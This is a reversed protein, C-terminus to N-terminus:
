ARVTDRHIGRHIERGLAERAAFLEGLNQRTLLGVLRGRSAVPLTRGGHAEFREMADGLPEAADLVPLDDRMVTAVAAGEGRESLGHVLDAKYLMGLVRGGEVVPFDEQTGALLEDLARQLSDDARVSTFRVVMADAVLQHEAAARLEVDMLEGGAALWLFGGILALVPNLWLGLLVFAIAFGRGIGAARRTAALRGVRTALVARLVRGGDMPFAPLLNFVAIALNAVALRQLLSLALAGWGEGAVPELAGLLSLGSLLVAGIVVNVAPGALAIWLEQRGETPMRELRAMGGIPLLTIDRTRVGFRQAMLAHGLEHLAVCAFLALIFVVEAGVAIANGHQQWAATGFWALLLLFTAHVRLEIGRVQGIRWSWRGRSATPQENM